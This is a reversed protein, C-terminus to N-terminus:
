AQGFEIRVAGTTFGGDVPITQGTVFRSEESALFVVPGDLDERRGERKLPTRDILYAKWAEDRFLRDTQHTHFWGPAICNVTIGHPGWEDALSMTLQRVGGRSACYPALGAYGFFSTVSGINIVRGYRAPLMARRAVAQAMFFQGRLNTGVVVDWDEATVEIAPKRRNCGANNVLIDIRGFGEIVAGATREISATDMVDLEVPLARRGLAEIEAIIDDLGARRRSTVAVDAGARALARAMHFGLGRSAGTVIAVRNSLDFPKM